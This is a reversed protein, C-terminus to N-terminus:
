AFLNDDDNGKKKHSDRNIYWEWMMEPSALATRNNSQWIIEIYKKFIQLHRPYCTTHMQIEDRTAFPCFLCGIREWGEDYLTCYELKEQKIYRWIEQKSWDVIPFIMTKKKDSYCTEIMGYKARRPSEEWRVGLLCTRGKGGTEKLYGCCWRVKHNPLIGKERLLPFFTKVPKDMVIGQKRIFYIIEPPDIGTISYHAEYKVGAKKVLDLLVVSDKGGSFGLWYGEPPEFEKIRMISKEIKEPLLDVLPIQATRDALSSM